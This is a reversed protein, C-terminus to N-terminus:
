KTFDINKPEPYFTHNIGDWYGNRALLQGIFTIGEKTWKLRYVTKFSGSPQESVVRGYGKNIYRYSLRYTGDERIIIGLEQLILNLRQGSCGFMGGVKSINALDSGSLYTHAFLLGKTEENKDKLEIVEVNLDGIHDELEEIVTERSQLLNSMDALRKEYNDKSVEMVKKIENDGFKMNPNLYGGTKRISPLVEITLWNLFKEASPLNSNLLLRYFDSEPIVKGGHNSFKLRGLTPLNSFLDELQSKRLVVARRCYKGIVNYKNKYGLVSAVQPAYFWFEDTDKNLVMMLSGDFLNPNVLESYQFPKDGQEGIEQNLNLNNLSKVENEKNSERSKDNNKVM